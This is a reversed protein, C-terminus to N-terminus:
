SRRCALCGASLCDSISCVAKTRRANGDFGSIGHDEFVIASGIEPRSRTRMGGVGIIRFKVGLFSDGGPTAIGESESFNTGPFIVIM